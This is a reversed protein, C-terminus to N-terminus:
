RVEIDFSGHYTVNNYTVSVSVQYLGKPPDAQYTIAQTAANWTFADQSDGYFSIGVNWTSNSPTLNQPESDQLIRRAAVTLSGSELGTSTYNLTNWNNSGTGYNQGNKSLQIVINEAISPTITIGSIAICVENADNQGAVTVAEVGIQYAEDSTFLSSPTAQLANDFGETIKLIKNTNNPIQQTTIGIKHPTGSETYQTMGGTIKLVKQVTQSQANTYTPLYLNNQIPTTSNYLQKSNGYVAVSGAVFLENDAASALEIGAGNFIGEASSSSDILYGGTLAVNNLTVKTNAGIYMVRGTKTSSRAANIKKVSSNDSVIELNLAPSTTDNTINIFAQNNGTTYSTSSSDTIDSLLHITYVPRTASTDAANLTKIVDVAKQITAFPSNSKGAGLINSINTTSPTSPNSDIGDSSVYFDKGTFKSVSANPVCFVGSSNIYNCAESARKWTNTTLNDFVNISESITYSLYEATGSGSYFKFDVKYKGSAANTHSLTGTLPSSSDTSSFNITDVYAPTTSVGTSTIKYWIAYAKTITSGAQATLELSVNGNGPTGTETMTPIVNVTIQRSPNEDNILVPDSDGSYIIKANEAASDKVITNVVWNGETLKIIFNGDSDETGNKTVAPTVATTGEENYLTATIYCKWDTELGDPETPFASRVETRFSPNIIAKIIYETQESNGFDKKSFIASCGSLSIILTILTFQLLLTKKMKM